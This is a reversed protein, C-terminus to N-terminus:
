DAALKIEFTGMSRINMAVGPLIPYTADFEAMFKGLFTENKIHGLAQGRYTIHSKVGAHVKDWSLMDFVEENSEVTVGGVVDFMTPSNEDDSVDIELSVYIADFLRKDLVFQLLEENPMEWKMKACVRSDDGRWVSGDIIPFRMSKIRRGVEDLKDSESKPLSINASWEFDSYSIVGGTIRARSRYGRYLPRGLDIAPLRFDRRISSPSLVGELKEALVEVEEIEIDVIPPETSTQSSHFLIFRRGNIIATYLASVEPHRAYSITQDIEEKGINIDPGKVEIIWRGAGTVNLIYDARGRMKPDSKNKRGLFIRDYSLTYERLIDNQTGRAYGLLFLLPSVVDERIDTENAGDLDM